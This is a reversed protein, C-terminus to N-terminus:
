RSRAIPTSPIYLDLAVGYYGRQPTMYKRFPLIAVYTTAM